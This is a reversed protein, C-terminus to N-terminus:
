VQWRRYDSLIASASLPILDGYLASGGASAGSADYAIAGVGTINISKMAGSFTAKGANDNVYFVQDFIQLVAFLLDAPLDSFGGHYSIRMQHAVTYQDFRLLGAKSDVHFRSYANPPTVGNVGDVTITTVDTLPYRMLSVAYGAFHTINEIEDAEDFYRDCYREALRVATEYAGTLDTDRSSDAPDLGARVRLVTIDIM